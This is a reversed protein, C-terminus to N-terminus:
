CLKIAELANELTFKGEYLAKGVIAGSVGTKSLARLDDVSGVGGSAEIQLSPFNRSLAEYLEMNPGELTGDRSIDTCLIHKLGDNLYTELLEGLLIHSQEQWGSVAIRFDEGNPMVDVAICINESGFQKLCTKVIEPDRVALSGIVVRAAGKELLIEVDRVSRVGGGTQVKLGSSAVIEGLLDSQRKAPDRAGDLDVVHLWRAGAARYKEAINHPKEEYSTCEDFRGKHLRVCTGNILDIAPYIIM